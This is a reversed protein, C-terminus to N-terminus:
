PHLGRPEVDFHQRVLAALSPPIPADDTTGTPASEPMRQHRSVRDVAIAVHLLVSNIGYENVFYGHSDLLAILDTKFAGLNESAFEKQVSELELFGQASESRFLKGLIRRRDGESGVLAVLSGRRTLALGADEGLTKVKRLDGEITSESVFLSDALAHIDVGEPAETLRRVLHHVRDQPTSGDSTRRLAGSAFTAYAERNLRYGTTSSSIISLPHAAAKAATVYSRVSRTTVGLQDSLEAATVWGETQSLHDLLREYKDSM